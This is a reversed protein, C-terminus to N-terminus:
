AAGEYATKLGEFHEQQEAALKGNIDGIITLILSYNNYLFRERKRADGISKSMKTLFAEIEGRLRLLSTSVPEDDGAETSLVLIGQMFQAFRQTMFHPAASQKAQESASRVVRTSLASTTARVSECHQDMVVQFRPWLLMNTGNIYGDVAPIKRRQLEFASHQNLRVCLLLGLGDYTEHMLSKTLAQGLAFTPEFIYNFHRSIAAYTLAPSFFATLFSYEASANDVLALNFNRFPFELYHTTNDEEALFSSLATQNSSKLLDIRRGLNFADHQPAATKSNSLITTKRTGDDQGLVDNKDLIHVKIKEIAKHYRTFQSLFYWRMTNMYAQGIEEGLKPHHKHLFAFLDKYRIFYQQQIIQANINPSRLAKIQAVLFDRIRELAKSILNDLLPKLDSIGKINRREKFKSDMAKSRKEVESLARVWAEDITGEVIKRVVAPSVSIEEVIPGLGAEVVKRNELRISLATSRGQLTEIEASVQALDNQFSTLNTEVSNLVDDCARISLHLEEFKQKEKGFEEITQVTNVDSEADSSTDEALLEQLSLGGFDLESAAQFWEDAETATIAASSEETGLLKQLVSLPEPADPITTSTKLASGNARRASSLLSTSSDNSALSLSSSRPSFGPRQVASAPALHGTRRIQALQARNLPPPPSGSPTSHGSLRDTWGLM